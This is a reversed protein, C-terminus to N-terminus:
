PTGTALPISVGYSPRTHTTGRAYHAREGAAPALLHALRVVKRATTNRTLRCRVVDPARSADSADLIGQLESVQCCERSAVVLALEQKVDAAFSPKDASAAVRM